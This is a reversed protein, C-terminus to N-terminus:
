SAPARHGNRAFNAVPCPAMPFTRRRVSLMELSHKFPNQTGLVPLAPLWFTNFIYM